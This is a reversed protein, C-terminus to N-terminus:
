KVYSGEGHLEGNDLYYRKDFKKWVQEEHTLIVVSWPTNNACLIDLILDLSETDIGDLTEDIVILRPSWIIARAVMLQLCQGRSLPTGSETLVTQLGNPFASIIKMLGIKELVERISGLEIDPRRMKLNEEITSQFVEIGRVIGIQSRLSDTEIDRLDHNDIEVFGSKPLKLKFLVSALSSKGSGNRGYIAIKEGSKLEFSLHNILSNGRSYHYSVDNFVISMPGTKNHVETGSFSEEPLDFLIDLKCVAAVLDYFSELHKGLKSVANLVLAVVLEAAVLQGLTLQKNIVLYGGLGLLAASGTAQLVYAGVHQRLLAKFHKSRCYLYELVLEDTRIKAYEKAWKPKYLVPHRALEELWSLVDYKRASEDIASPVAGVGLLLVIFISLVLLLGFTLLLPHYFSLLILGLIIQFLVTAGELLMQATVKQITVIELFRNVIEPLHMSTFVERQVNPFKKTLINSVRVFIRRQIIETAYLQVCKLVGAFGLAVFVIISLVVLPQLVTGFAITSVLSNAAIPVVLSLFGIVVAYVAIITIDKSDPSYFLWLRAVASQFNNVKYNEAM